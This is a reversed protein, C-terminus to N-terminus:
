EAEESKKSLSLFTKNKSLGTKVLRDRDIEEREKIEANLKAIEEDKQKKMEMEKASNFTMGNDFLREKSAVIEIKKEEKFMEKIKNNEEMLNEFDFDEGSHIVDGETASILKDNNENVFNIPDDFLNDNSDVVKTNEKYINESINEKIDDFGDDSVILTAGPKKFPNPKTFSGPKQYTIEAKVEIKEVPKNVVPLSIQEVPEVHEIADDEWPLPEIKESTKVEITIKNSEEKVDNIKDVSVETMIETVVTESTKSEEIVEQMIPDGAIDVGIQIMKVSKIEKIEEKKTEKIIQVMSDSTNKDVLSNVKENENILDVDLDPLNKAIELEPLKEEKEIKDIFEKLLINYDNFISDHFFFKQNNLIWEKNIAFFSAGNMLDIFKKPLDTKVFYKNVKIDFWKVVQNEGMYRANFIWQGFEKTLELNASSTVENMLKFILLCRLSNIYVDTFQQIKHKKDIKKIINFTEEQWDNGVTDKILELLSKNEMLVKLDELKKIRVRESQHPALYEMNKILADIEEVSSKMSLM